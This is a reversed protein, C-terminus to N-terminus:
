SSFTEHVEKPVVLKLILRRVNQWSPLIEEVMSLDRDTGHFYVMFHLSDLPPLLPVPDSTSDKVADRRRRGREGPKLHLTLSKLKEFHPLLSKLQLWQEQTRRLRISISSINSWWARNLQASLLDLPLPNRGRRELFQIDTITPSLQLIELM